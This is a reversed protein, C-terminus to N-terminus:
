RVSRLRANIQRAAERRVERRFEAREAATIGIIPRAPQRGSGGDFRRVDEGFDVSWGDRGAATPAGEIESPLSGGLPRGDPVKKRALGGLYGTGRRLRAAIARKAREAQSKFLATLNM